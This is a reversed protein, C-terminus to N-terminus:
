APRSASLQVVRLAGNALGAAFLMTGYGGDFVLTEGGRIRDVVEWGRAKM